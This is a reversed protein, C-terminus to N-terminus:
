LYRSMDSILSQIEFTPRFYEKMFTDVDKLKRLEIYNREIHRLDEYWYDLVEDENQLGLIDFYKNIKPIYILFHEPLLEYNDPYGSWKNAAEAYDSWIYFIEIPTTDCFYKYLIVALLSCKDYLYVSSM